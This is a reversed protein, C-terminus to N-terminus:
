RQEGASSPVQFQHRQKTVGGGSVGFGRGKSRATIVQQSRQHFTQTHKQLVQISRFAKQCMGCQYPKPSMSYSTQAPTDDHYSQEASTTGEGMEDVQENMMQLDGMDDEDDDDIVEVKIRVDDDDKVVHEQKINDQETPESAASLRDSTPDSSETTCTLSLQMPVAMDDDSDAGTQNATHTDNQDDIDTVTSSEKVSNEDDDDDHEISRVDDVDPEIVPESQLGIEKSQIGRDVM